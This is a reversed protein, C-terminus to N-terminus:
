NRPKMEAGRRGIGREPYKRLIDDGLEIIRPPLETMIEFLYRGFLRRFILLM